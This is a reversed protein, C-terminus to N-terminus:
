APAITLETLVGAADTAVALTLPVPGDLRFTARTAGDGAIAPGLGAGASWAAAVALQRRADARLAPVIPVDDPWTPVADGLAQTLRDAIDRLAKPPDPVATVDLTQVRPPLEPDLQIEVRVRGGPGRLWWVCHAPSDSRPPEQLDPTLPGLRTAVDAWHARRRTLPEDLDVNMALLAEAAADTGTTILRTVAAQAAATAPWVVGGAPAPRRAIGPSDRHALLADMMLGALVRAPAYTANALVIVGLGSTPHWRMHSGFGPYGGSHSVLTGLAPDHEALLGFGYGTSRIVPPEAVSRWTVTPALTVQALQLERRSARSLPGDDPDDRPPFAEALFAVWRALDRVTSFLGGMPAFAGYADFPVPEWDAGTRRYGTARREPEVVAEGFGTDRLGLPTLLGRHVVDPYEADAARAIVRGLLAYGTNSYEYVTGPTWAFSLGDALLAAFRADPLDQQRDGWPDDTPLGAIMSLLSRVTLAPSDTTPLRIAAVEPVYRAVADDLRLRGADRLLLVTAATFSKTMSAIRFLTDADPTHGPQGVDRVGRGGSHVLRGDLVLGYALGPQAGAAAHEDVLREVLDLDLDLDPDIDAM